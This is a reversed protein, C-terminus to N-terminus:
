NMGFHKRIIEEGAREVADSGAFFEVGDRAAVYREYDINGGGVEVEFVSNDGYNTSYHTVSRQLDGEEFEPRHSPGVPTNQRVEDAYIQTLAELEQRAAAAREPVDHFFQIM